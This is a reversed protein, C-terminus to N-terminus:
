RENAAAPDPFLVTLKECVKPDPIHDRTEALLSGSVGALVLPTVFAQHLVRAIVAALLVGIWVPAGASKFFFWNPFALCLFLFFQGAASFVLWARAMRRSEKGCDFYLALGERVSREGKASERGFALSLVAQSLPPVALLDLTRSFGRPRHVNGPAALEKSGRTFSFLARRVAGNLYAWRVHDPVLRKSEKIAAALGAAASPRGSFCLLMAARHRYLFYRQLVRGSAWWGLLASLSALVAVIPRVGGILRAFFLLMGFLVLVMFGGAVFFGARFLVLPLARVLTALAERSNVIM